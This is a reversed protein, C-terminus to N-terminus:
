ADEFEELTVPSCPDLIDVLAGALSHSAPPLTALSQAMVGQDAMLHDTPTMRDFRAVCGDVVDMTLAYTGRAAPVMARGTAPSQIDPELGRSFADFDVARAAVRWLPGRGYRAEIWTLWPHDPHRAAVSNELAADGFAAIEDPADLPACVAVGEAFRDAVAALLPGIGAGSQMVDELAPLRDAGWFAIRQDDLSAPVAMRDVGFRSPLLVALRLAHERCIEARLRAKDESTPVSGAAVVIAMRQAMPCLNFIRPVIEAVESVPRGIVLRGVPPKAGAKARLRSPTRDLM